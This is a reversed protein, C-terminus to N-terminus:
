KWVIIIIIVFILLLDIMTGTNKVSLPDEEKEKRQKKQEYM